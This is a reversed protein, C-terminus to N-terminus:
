AGKYEYRLAALEREPDVGAMLMKAVLVVAYVVGPLLGLGAPGLAGGADSALRSRALLGLLALVACLGLNMYPLWTELPGRAPDPAVSFSSRRRRRQQQQQRLSFAQQSQQQGSALADLLPLGTAPPPLSYLLYGTSALSTLALLTLLLLPHSARQFVAVLYPLSALAPLALLLQRFSANHSENQAEEDMAEPSNTSSSDDPYRFAKRLRATTGKIDAM